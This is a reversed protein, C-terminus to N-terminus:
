RVGSWNAWLNAGSGAVTAWTVLQAVADPSVETATEGFRVRTCICPALSRM